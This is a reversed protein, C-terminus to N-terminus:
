CLAASAENKFFVKNIINSNFEPIHKTSRWKANEAETLTLCNHPSVYAIFQTRM